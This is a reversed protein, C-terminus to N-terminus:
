KLENDKAFFREFIIGINSLSYGFLGCGIIMSSLAVSVEINNTPSIDGYGVTIM